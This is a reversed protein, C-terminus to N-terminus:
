RWKGWQGVNKLRKAQQNKPHYGYGISTSTWIRSLVIIAPAAVDVYSFEARYEQTEQSLVLVQSNKSDM